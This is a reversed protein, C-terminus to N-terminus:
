AEVLEIKVKKGLIAAARYITRVSVSLSQEDLIRNVVTRSTKMERAVLAVSKNQEKMAHAFEAALAKKFGRDSVEEYIGEEKLWDDFNSGAHKNKQVTQTKM